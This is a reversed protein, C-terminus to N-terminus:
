PAQAAHRKVMQEIWRDHFEYLGADNIICFQERASGNSCLNASGEIAFRTGDAFQLAMVKCHSDVAATRQKRQRFEDVMEAFLETNHSRFFKSVLLDLTGVKSADLWELMTRYNRRNLGLTAIKATECRGLKELLANLVDTMDFRATMIAHLSEGPGPLVVLTDAAEKIGAARRAQLRLLRPRPLDRGDDDEDDTVARGFPIRRPTFKAV